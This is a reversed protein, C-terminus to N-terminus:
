GRTPPRSRPQPIPGAAAGGGPGAEQAHLVHETLSVAGGSPGGRRPSEPIAAVTRRQLLSRPARTRRRSRGKQPGRKFGCVGPWTPAKAGASGRRARLIGGVGAGAGRGRLETSAQNTAVRPLRGRGSSSRKSGPRGAERPTRRRGGGIRRRGACSRADSEPKRRRGPRLPWVLSRV